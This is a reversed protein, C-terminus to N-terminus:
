APLAISEIEEEYGADYVALRDVTWEVPDVSGALTAADGGRAVTVHPVYDVGEIGPTPDFTECLRDHLEVLGPSEVALYAVPGRGAPPDAFTAVREIHAAVPPAGALAERARRGLAAPDDEGLRKCVLTHRERVRATRASAGVGAALRGVETPVPANLSYM